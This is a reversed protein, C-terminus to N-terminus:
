DNLASHPIGRPAFQITIAEVDEPEEYLEVMVRRTKAFTEAFPHANEPDTTEITQSPKPPMHSKTPDEIAGKCRSSM